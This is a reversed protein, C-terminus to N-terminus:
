LGRLYAQGPPDNSSAGVEGSPYFSRTSGPSRGTILLSHGAAELLQAAGPTTLSQSTMSSPPPLVRAEDM